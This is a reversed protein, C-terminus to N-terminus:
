SYRVLPGVIIAALNAEFLTYNVGGVDCYERLDATTAYRHHAESYLNWEVVWPKGANENVLVEYIASITSFM